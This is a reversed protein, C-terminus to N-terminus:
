NNNSKSDFNIINMFIQYCLHFEINCVSLRLVLFDSMSIKTVDFDSKSVIWVVSKKGSNPKSWTKAAFFNTQSIKAM